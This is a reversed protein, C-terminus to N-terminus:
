RHEYVELRSFHEDSLSPYSQRVEWMQMPTPLEIKLVLFADPCEDLLERLIDFVVIIASEDLRIIPATRGPLTTTPHASIQRLINICAAALRGTLRHLGIAYPVFPVLILLLEGTVSAVHEAGFLEKAREMLEIVNNLFLEQDLIRASVCWRVLALVYDWKNEHSLQQTATSEGNGHKTPKPVFGKRLLEGIYQCLDKTWVSSREAASKTRNLYIIKVLWLARPM